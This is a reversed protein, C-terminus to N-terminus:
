PPGPPSPASARTGTPRGAAGWRTEPVVAAHFAGGALGLGAIVLAAPGLALITTVVGVVFPSAAAGADTVLRWVGLFVGPETDAAFDAGLTMNIGSGMGNGLGVVLGVVILTGLGRALPIMAMGLSLVLLCSVASWKRGWRDSVLGAPLFMLTDSASSIGVVLGIGTDDLGIAQGWLPFVLTRGARVMSLIMMSLGATALVKRRSRVVRRLAAPDWLPPASGRGPARDSQGAPSAVFLILALAALGAAGLFVTRYGAAGAVLGGVIPGLLLGGRMVGGVTSLGRGRSGAALAKRMFELRGVLWFAAAGNALFVGVTAVAPTPSVAILLSSAVIVVGSVVLVRREGYRAVIFGSPLDFLLIGATGIGVLLAAGGASTGLHTLFLPLFTNMAGDGVALLFAPLYM